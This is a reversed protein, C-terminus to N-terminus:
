NVLRNWHSFVTSPSNWNLFNKKMSGHILPKIDFSTDEPNELIRDLIRQSSKGFTDSVVSALQINSVTLCNQLRNKESSMFCTLKYRYRMLDRLQRIDAPPMFSGGVLDNKFLDAIWKTDKKNTKKRRIAKVYKPHALVITCDRWGKHSPQSVITSTPPLVKNTPPLSTPLLLLKTFILIVVFPYVIKLAM